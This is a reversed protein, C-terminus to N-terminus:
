RVHRKKIGMETDVCMDTKVTYMKMTGTKLLLPATTYKMIYTGM